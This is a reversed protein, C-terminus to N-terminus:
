ETASTRNNKIPTTSNRLYDLAVEREEKVIEFDPDRELAYDFHDVAIQYKGMAIYVQGMGRFISAYYPTVNTQVRNESLNSKGLSFAKEYAELAEDYREMNRLTDAKMSWLEGNEPYSKLAKNSFELLEGTRNLYDLLVGKFYLVGWENPLLQISEDTIELAEEYREAYMLITGKWLWNMSDSQNLEIAKDIAELAEEYREMKTFAISKGSWPDPDNPCNSIWEDYIVLANEYNRIRKEFIQAKLDWPYSSCIDSTAAKEYALLAEENRGLLELALSLGGWAKPNGPDYIVASKLDNLGFEYLNWYLNREGEEVLTRSKNKPEDCGLGHKYCLEYLRLTYEYTLNEEFRELDSKESETGFGIKLGVYFIALIILVIVGKRLDM